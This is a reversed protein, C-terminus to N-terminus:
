VSPDRLRPTPRARIVVSWGTERGALTSHFPSAGFRNRTRARGRIPGVTSLALM